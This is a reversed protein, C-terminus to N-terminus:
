ARSKTSTAVLYQQIYPNDHKDEVYIVEAISFKLDSAPCNGLSNWEVNSLFSIPSFASNQIRALQDFM